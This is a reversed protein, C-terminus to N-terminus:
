LEPYVLLIHAKICSFRNKPIALWTMGFGAQEAVSFLKFLSIESTAVKSLIGKFLRIVFTSILSDTDKNNAFGPPLNEPM